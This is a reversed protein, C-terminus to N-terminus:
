LWIKSTLYHGDLTKIRIIQNFNSTNTCHSSSSTDQKIPLTIEIYRLHSFGQSLREFQEWSCSDDSSRNTLTKIILFFENLNPFYQNINSLNNIHFSDITLKLQTISLFPKPCSDIDLIKCHTNTISLSTVQPLYDLLQCCSLLSYNCLSLSHLRNSCIIITPPLLLTTDIRLNTLCPYKTFLNTISLKPSHCDTNSIISLDHINRHSLSSKM